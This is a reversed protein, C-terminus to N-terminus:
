TKSTVVGDVGDICLPVLRFWGDFEATEPNYTEFYMANRPIVLLGSNLTKSTVLAALMVAMLPQEEKLKEAETDSM